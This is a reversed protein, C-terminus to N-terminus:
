VETLSLDYRGLELEAGKAVAAHLFAAVYRLHNLLDFLNLETSGPTAPEDKAWPGLAARVRAAWEPRVRDLDGEVLRAAGALAADLCTSLERVQGSSVLDFERGNPAVAMELGGDFLASVAEANQDLLRM